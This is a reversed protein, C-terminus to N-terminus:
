QLTHLKESQTDASKLCLEVVCTSGRLFRVNGGVNRLIQRTIALGLGAGRSNPSGKNFRVFMAEQRDVPVGPGEDTVTLQIADSNRGMRVSVTGQGHFFANELVNRVATHLLFDSGTCQVSEILDVEIARGHSEFLPHMAAVIERVMRTLHTTASTPAAEGTGSNQDQRALLLLQETVQRLYRLDREIGEWDPTVETRAKQLRLDLVTLPTRLEHAADAVLRKENALSQTLKELSGNVAHALPLLESPLAHTPIPATKGVPINQVLHAAAQVPKLTWRMVQYILLLALLGVPLLLVLSQLLKTHLLDGIAQRELEDRKAVMLTAGDSLPAAVNVVKGSYIPWNFFDFGDDAPPLRLRRPSKLNESFWVLQGTPSYLTYSLEGGAYTTPLSARDSQMTFGKAIEHAQIRVTARRLQDRTDFLALSLAGVGAVFSLALGALVRGKLSSVAM